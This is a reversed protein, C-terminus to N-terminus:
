LTNYPDFKTDTDLPFIPRRLRTYKLKEIRMDGAGPTLLMIHRPAISALGPYLYGMKLVVIKRELPNIGCLEFQSLDRFTYPGESLVTEIGNIQIVALRPQQILRIVEVDAELPPGYRKEISAGISLHLRSGAGLEFCRNTATADNICAVVASNVKREVLHRLVIPLDGPASATVNDGSDTLFVTSEKANIAKSVGGELEATECGYDFLYRSDWIKKALFRAAAQAAQLSGDATVAVSMGTDPADTWACGVFLTAALVREKYGTIGEREIRRAEEVLSGFPEATTMAKEGQIIMPIQLVYSVPKIKGSLTDFTIRGALEATPGSDTHPATKLGVMIDAYQGMRPPINGHLDFTCAIPVNPGILKRIEGILVTEAHGIGEAYMAGHLRMFVADVPMAESLSDMVRDMADRCPAEEILGGGLPTANIGTVINYDFGKWANLNPDDSKSFRFSTTKLPHFTNTEHSFGGIFIRKSDSNVILGSKFITGPNPFCSLNYSFAVAIAAGTQQLFKRRKIM